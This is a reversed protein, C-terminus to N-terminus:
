IRPQVIFRMPRSVSITIPAKITRSTTHCVTPLKQRFLGGAGIGQGRVAVVGPWHPVTGYVPFACLIM